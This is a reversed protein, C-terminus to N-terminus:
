GTVANRTRATIVVEICKRIYQQYANPLPCELCATRKAKVVEICKRITNNALMQFHANLARQATKGQGSRYVEM